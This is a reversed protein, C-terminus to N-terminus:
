AAKRPLPRLSMTTLTATTPTCPRPMAMPYSSRRTRLPKMGQFHFLIGLKGEAKARRIDAVTTVLVLDDRGRSREHWTSIASMVARDEALM